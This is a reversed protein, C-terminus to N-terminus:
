AAEAGRVAHLSHVAMGARRAGASIRRPGLLPDAFRAMVTVGPGSNAVEFHDLDIRGVVQEQESSGDRARGAAVQGDALRVLNLGLSSWWRSWPQLGPPGNRSPNVIMNVM